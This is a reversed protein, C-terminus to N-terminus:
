RTCKCSIWVKSTVDVVYGTTTLDEFNMQAGLALVDNFACDIWAGFKPSGAFTTTTRYANLMVNPKFTIKTPRTPDLVHMQANGREYMQAQSITEASDYDRAWWLKPYVASAAAQAGPDLRLTFTVEVKDFRYQDYLATLESGGNITSMYFFYSSTIPSAGASVTTRFWKVHQHVRAALRSRYVSKAQKARKAPRSASQENKRKM